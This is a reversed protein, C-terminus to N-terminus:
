QIQCFWAEVCLDLSKQFNTPGYSLTPYAMCNWIQNQATMVYYGIIHLTDLDIINHQLM